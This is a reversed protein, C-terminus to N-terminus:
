DLFKVYENVSKRYGRIRNSKQDFCIMPCIEWGKNKALLMFMMASLSANRVAEDHKFGDGWTEYLNTIMNITANFEVEDIIGLM